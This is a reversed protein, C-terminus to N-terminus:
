IYRQISDIVTDYDRHRAELVHKTFRAPKRGAFWNPHVL